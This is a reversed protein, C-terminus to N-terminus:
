DQMVFFLAAAGLLLPLTMDGQPAGGGLTNLPDYLANGTPTTRYAVGTRGYMANPDQGAASSTGSAYPSSSAGGNVPSVSPSGDGAQVFTPNVNVSVGNSVTTNQSTRNGGGLSGLLKQAFDGAGGMTGVNGDGGLFM